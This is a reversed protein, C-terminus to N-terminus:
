HQLRAMNHLHSIRQGINPWSYQRELKRRGTQGYGQARSRDSVLLGIASAIAQASPAVLLGDRRDDIVSRLVPLDQAIVPKGYHWAELYVVGLGEKFSPVCVLTCARLYASMEAQDVTEQSFIRRDTIAALQQRVHGDQPGIFAFHVDPHQQWVLPAAEALLGAGKEIVARGLFLVLPGQPPTRLQPRQDPSMADDVLPGFPCVHAREAPAGHAILWAREFSTLAITAAAAQYLKRFRRTSWTRSQHTGSSVLPTFIFPKNQTRAIEAALEASETMGNYIFHVIEYRAVIAAIPARFWRRYLCNQLPRLARWRQAASSLRHLLRRRGPSLGPRHWQCHGDTGWDAVATAAALDSPEDSSQNHFLVGVRRTTALEQALRRTHLESGGIAPWYRPIWILTSPHAQAHPTDNPM